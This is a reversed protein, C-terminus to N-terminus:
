HCQYMYRVFSVLVAVKFDFGTLMKGFSEILTSKGAGPPGSLGIRITPKLKGLQNLKSQHSLIKTLLWQAQKHKFPHKSEVTPPHPPSPPLSLIHSVLLLFFVTNVLTYLPILPFFHQDQFKELIRGLNLSPVM